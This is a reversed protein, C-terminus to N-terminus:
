KKRRKTNSRIEHPQLTLVGDKYKGTAIQLGRDRKKIASKKRYKLGKQEFEAKKTEENKRQHALYEARPVHRSKEPALGLKTLKESQYKLRDKGKLHSVAFNEVLKSAQLLDEM